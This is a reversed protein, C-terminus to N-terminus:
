TPPCANSLSFNMDDPTYRQPLPNTNDPTCKQPLPNTDDPTYRQPLPSTDNPTYQQPFPNTDDPTYWQPLPSTHYALRSPTILQSPVQAHHRSSLLVLLPGSHQSHKSLTVTMTHHRLSHCSRPLLIHGRPSSERELKRRQQPQAQEEARGKTKARREEHPGQSEVRRWLNASTRKHVRCCTEISLCSCAHQTPVDSWTKEIIEHQPRACLSPSPRAIESRTLTNRRSTQPHYANGQSTNGHTM